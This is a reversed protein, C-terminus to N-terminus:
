LIQIKIGLSLGLIDKVKISENTVASMVYLENTSIEYFFTVSKCFVKKSTDFEYELAQGVFISPRLKTSFKYYNNPYKSPESRWFKEGFVTNIYLGTTLPKLNFTENLRCKWPIFNQKITMTAKVKRTSYRPVIGFLLDTEWQKNKGYNWGTGVSILGMSGAFQVKSYSPILRNWRSYMKEIKKDYGVVTKKNLYITDTIYITDAKVNQGKLSIVSVFCIAAISLLLRKFNLWKMITHM